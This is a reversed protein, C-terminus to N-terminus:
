QCDMAQSLAQANRLMISTYDRGAHVDDASLSELPHLGLVSGGIQKAVMRALRDDGGPELMIHKIGQELIEEVTSVVRDPSVEYGHSLGALGLQTFGYREAMHGYALHSVVVTDLNCNHISEAIQSDLLTLDAELRDANQKFEDAGDPDAAVFASEVGRVMKIVNLPNLWTHPDNKGGVGDSEIQTVAFDELLGSIELIVLSNNGSADVADSIWTEFDRHAYVLVDSQGIKIIDSPSPDFSHPDAGAQALSTVRVRNGGVHESVYAVPYITTIVDLGRVTVVPTIEKGREGVVTENGCGVVFFITALVISIKSTVIM